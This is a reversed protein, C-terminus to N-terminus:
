REHAEQRSLPQGGLPFGKELRELARKKAKAYRADENVARAILGSLWQSLSKEQSLAIQRSKKLLNEDLKLTVNRTLDKGKLCFGQVSVACSFHLVTETSFPCLVTCIPVTGRRPM